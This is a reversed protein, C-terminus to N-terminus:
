FANWRKCITSLLLLLFSLALSDTYDEIFFGREM